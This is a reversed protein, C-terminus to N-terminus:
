ETITFIACRGLLMKLEEHTSLRISSNKSQDLMNSIM